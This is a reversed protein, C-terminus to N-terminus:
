PHAGSSALSPGRQNASSKSQATIARIGAARGILTARWRPFVDSEKMLLLRLVQAPGPASRTGILFAWIVFAVRRLGHLHEFLILTENAVANRQAQPNFVRRQDEDFREAPYHDVAISPDLLLRWGARRMALGLSLEWHVQAGGGALRRDFGIQRLPSSRYACNVGKLVVVERPSGVALHHGSTVRGYWSMQGAGSTEGSSLHGNKFVYDRGGVGGLGPDRDFHAEIKQLWDPRPAADDDTLAVLDGRASALGANMAAIVGGENVKVIELPPLNASERELFQFTEGDTTRVTVITQDPPRVQAALAALCRMLDGPRRYTPVIVSVTASM